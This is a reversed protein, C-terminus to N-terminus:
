HAKPLSVVRAVAPAQFREQIDQLIRQELPLDRGLPIWAGVFQTPSVAEGRRSPLSDDHRFVAAGASALLPRPLDELEKNVTVQVEYSGGCPIVHVVATRRITQLTSEWRSFRGVSDPRHPELITAGIQPFTDIRGRTLSNGVVQVQQEYEVRFYDNIVDVIQEWAQEHHMAPVRVASNSVDGLSPVAPAVIMEPPAAIMEPPVTPPPVEEPGVMVAGPYPSSAAPGVPVVATHEVHPYNVGHCGTASWVSALWLAVTLRPVTPAAALVSGCGGRCNSPPGSSLEIPFDAVNM